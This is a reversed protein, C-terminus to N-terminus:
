PFPFFSALNNIPIKRGFLLGIFGYEPDPFLNFHFSLHPSPLSTVNISTGGCSLFGWPISFLTERWCCTRVKANLMRCSQSCWSDARRPSCYAVSPMAPVSRANAKFWKAQLPCWYPFWFWVCLLATGSCTCGIPSEQFHRSCSALSSTSFSHLDSGHGIFGLSSLKDSTM